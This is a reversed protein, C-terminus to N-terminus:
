AKQLTEDTEKEKEKERDEEIEYVINSLAVKLKVIKDFTGEPDKECSDIIFRDLINVYMAAGLHEQILSRILGGLKTEIEKIRKPALADILPNIVAELAKGEDDNKKGKM